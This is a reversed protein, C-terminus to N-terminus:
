MNNSLSWSSNGLTGTVNTSLTQNSTESDITVNATSPTTVTRTTRTSIIRPVLTKSICRCKAPSARPLFHFTGLGPHFLCTVCWIEHYKIGNMQMVTTKALLKTLGHLTGYAAVTAINSSIFKLNGKIEELLPLVYEHYAKLCRLCHKHM